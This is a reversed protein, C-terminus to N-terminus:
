ENNGRKRLEMLRRIVWRHVPAPSAPTNEAQLSQEEPGTITSTIRSFDGGNAVYKGSEVVQTGRALIIAPSSAIFTSWVIEAREARGM